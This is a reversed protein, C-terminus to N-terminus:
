CQSTPATVTKMIKMKIKLSFVSAYLDATKSFIIYSALCLSPKFGHKKGERCSQSSDPVRPGMELVGVGVGLWM